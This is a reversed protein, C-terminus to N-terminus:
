LYYIVTKELKRNVRWALLLLAIIMITVFVYTFPEALSGYLLPARILNLMQTIPNFVFISHLIDNSEFMEERFFIPSLYWIFQMLLIMVFPYDRYRVCVHSSITTVTWSFLFYILFTCPLSFFTLLLHEPYLIGGWVILGTLALAFTYMSVLAARLPYIAIPHAYQRIYAEATAFSSSNAVFAGHIMDWALTGSLIYPAYTRMEQKFVVSFVSSLILTLLLPQLVTWLIGIKSRRFRNKMDSKVLHILFFRAQYIRQFYARLYDNNM